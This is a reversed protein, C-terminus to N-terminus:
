SISSVFSLFTTMAQKKDETFAYDIQKTLYTMLRDREEKSLSLAALAEAVHTVGYALAENFSALLSPPLPKNAVWCAFVFPLGTMSEWEQALDYVYPYQPAYVFSKDGICLMCEPLPSSVAEIDVHEYSPQIHWYHQALVKVLAVSTRSHNDLYIHNIEQIPVKSVLVVSKVAGKAGICYSSVIQYSPNDLLTVVPVLAIDVEKHELKKACQAPVDYSLILEPITARELGYVFPITNTYSVISLKTM